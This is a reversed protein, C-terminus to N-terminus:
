SYIEIVIAMNSIIGDDQQAQGFDTATLIISDANQWIMDVGTNGSTPGRLMHVKEAIPFAGALTAVYVGAQDRTWVLAGLTNYHETAVPADGAAQSLNAVYRKDATASNFATVIKALLSNETEGHKYAVGLTQVLKELLITNSDGRRPETSDYTKSM